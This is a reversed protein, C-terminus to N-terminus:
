KIKQKIVEEAKHLQTDEEYEIKAKVMLEKPLTVKYDPEIGTGQICVGSPTFYQSTTVKIASGDSLPMISQVIGKGFTRTGVLEARNNDKLAGSLVESASASQENVLIVIPMDVYNADSLTEDVKGTNDKTSVITCEPLLEDAIKETIHLLGGTNNRLDIILGKANEKVIEDLAEKFQTYTLEEFERIQIYGIDDKLMKHNVSPHVVNERTMKLEYDKNESPRFITISVETGPTGKIIKPAEEFESGSLTKGEAGIIKDKPLMGAKEAPSGPFVDTVTISNDAPDLVMQVGIGAYVGSSKEMFSTFEEATYYTTYPDGVSAVFGKYIGQEMKDTDIDGVYYKSISEGIAELKKNIYDYKNTFGTTSFLITTSLVFGLAAGKFFQKNKM